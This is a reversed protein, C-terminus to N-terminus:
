SLFLHLMVTSLNFKFEEVMNIVFRDHIVM